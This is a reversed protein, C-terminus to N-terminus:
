GQLAKLLKNLQKDNPMGDGKLLCAVLVQTAAVASGAEADFESLTECDGKSPLKGEEILSKVIDIAKTKSYDTVQPKFGHSPAQPAPAKPAEPAKPALAENNKAVAENLDNNTENVAEDLESM